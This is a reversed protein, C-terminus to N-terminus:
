RQGQWASTFIDGSNTVSANADGTTIVYGDGGSTTAATNTSAPQEATFKGKTTAVVVMTPAYIQNTTIPQIVSTHKFTGITLDLEFFNNGAYGVPIKAKLATGSENDIYQHATTGCGTLLLCPLTLAAFLVVKSNTGGFLGSLVGFFGGNRWGIVARGIIGVFAILGIVSAVLGQYSAPILPVVQTIAKDIKAYQDPTLQVGANTTQAMAAITCAALIAAVILLPKTKM